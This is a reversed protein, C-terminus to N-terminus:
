FSVEHWTHGANRTLWMHSGLTPTGQV